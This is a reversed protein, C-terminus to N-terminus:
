HSISPSEERYITEWYVSSISMKLPDTVLNEVEPKDGTDVGGAILRKKRIDKWFKSFNSIAVMVDFIEHWVRKPNQRVNM